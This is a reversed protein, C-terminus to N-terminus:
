YQQWRVIKCLLMVLVSSRVVVIIRGAQRRKERAVLTANNCFVRVVVIGRAAAKNGLHKLPLSLSFLSSLSVVVAVTVNVSSALASCGASCDEDSSVISISTDSNVCSILTVIGSMPSDVPAYIHQYHVCTLSVSKSVLVSVNGGVALTTFHYLFSPSVTLLFSTSHSISVSTLLELVETQSHLSKHM